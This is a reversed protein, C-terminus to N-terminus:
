QKDGLHEAPPVVMEDAIAVSPTPLSEQTTMAPTVAGITPTNEASAVTADAYDKRQPKSDPRSSARAPPVRVGDAAAATESHTPSPTQEPKARLVIAPADAATSTSAASPEVALVMMLRDTVEKVRKTKKSGWWILM